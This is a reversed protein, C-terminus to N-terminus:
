VFRAGVGDLDIGVAADEVRPEELDLECHM